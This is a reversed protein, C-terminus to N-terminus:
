GSRWAMLAIWLNSDRDFALNYVSNSEITKPNSSDSIFQTTQRTKFDYFNLGAEWTGIWLGKGKEIAICLM